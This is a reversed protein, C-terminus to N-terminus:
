NDGPNQGEYIYTHAFSLRRVPQKSSKMIPPAVPARILALILLNITLRARTSSGSIFSRLRAFHRLKNGFIVCRECLWSKEQRAAHFAALASAEPNFSHFALRALASSQLEGTSHDSHFTVRGILRL